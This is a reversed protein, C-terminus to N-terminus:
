GVRREESRIVYGSVTLGLNELARATEVTLQGHACSATQCIIKLQAIYIPLTAIFLILTLAILVFCVVRALFLWHGSLRTVLADDKDSSKPLATVIHRLSM